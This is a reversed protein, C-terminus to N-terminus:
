VTVKAENMIEKVNVKAMDADKVMMEYYGKLAKFNKPLIQNRLCTAYSPLKL